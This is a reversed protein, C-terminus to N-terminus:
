VSFNIQSGKDLGASVGGMKQTEQMLESRAKAAMKTAKNAVSQDQASPSAPALAARRIIDAKRITAAPDGNVPSTDISVEGGTAYSAGDAGKTFSFSAGSTALGGAASLHAQEHTKVEQDRSKLHKDAAQEQLNSEETKSTESFETKVSNGEDNGTKKVSDYQNQYLSYGGSNFGSIEAVM